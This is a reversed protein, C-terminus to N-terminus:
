SIRLSLLGSVYANENAIRRRRSSLKSMSDVLHTKFEHGISEKRKIFFSNSRSLYNSLFTRMSNYLIAIRIFITWSTM